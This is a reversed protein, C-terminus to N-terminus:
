RLVQLTFRSLYIADNPCLEHCCYCMICKEYDILPHRKDM